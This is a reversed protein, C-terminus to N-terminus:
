LSFLTGLVLVGGIVICIWGGRRKDEDPVDMIRTLRPDSSPKNAGIQPIGYGILAAGVLLLVVNM